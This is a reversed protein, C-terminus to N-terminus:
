SEVRLKGRHNDVRTQCLTLGIEMRPYEQKSYLRQFIQSIQRSRRPAIEIGNDRVSFVWEDDQYVASIYILPTDQSRYKIGNKFYIIVVTM